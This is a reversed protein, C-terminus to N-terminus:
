TLVAEIAKVKVPFVWGFSPAFRRVSPVKYKQHLDPPEKVELREYWPTCVTNVLAMDVHFIMVPFIAIVMKVM